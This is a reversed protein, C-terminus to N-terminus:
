RSLSLSLSLSSTFPSPPLLPRCSELRSQDCDDKGASNRHIRRKSTCSSLKTLDISYVTVFLLVELKCSLLERPVLPRTLWISFDSSIQSSDRKVYMRRYVYVYIYTCMHIYVCAQQYLSAWGREREWLCM